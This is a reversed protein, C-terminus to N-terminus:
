QKGGEELEKSCILIFRRVDDVYKNCIPALKKTQKSIELYVFTYFFYM